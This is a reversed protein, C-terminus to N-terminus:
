REERAWHAMASENLVAEAAKTEDPTVESPEEASLHADGDATQKVLKTLPPCAPLHLTWDKAGAGGPV